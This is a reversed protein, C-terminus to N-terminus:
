RNIPRLDLTTIPPLQSLAKTRITRPHSTPSRLPSSTGDAADQQQHGDLTTAIFDNATRRSAL